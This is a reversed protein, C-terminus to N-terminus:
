WTHLGGKRTPGVMSHQVSYAFSPDHCVRRASPSYAGGAQMANHMAAYLISLLLVRCKQSSCLSLFAALFCKSAVKHQVSLFVEVAGCIVKSTLTDLPVNATLLM